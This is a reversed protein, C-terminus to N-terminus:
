KIPLILNYFLSFAVNFSLYLSLIDLGLNGTLSPQYAAVGGGICILIVMTLKFIHWADTFSDPIPLGLFTKHKLPMLLNGQADAEYKNKWSIEPYWFQPNLGRFISVYFHHSLTDMVANSTGALFFLLAAIM